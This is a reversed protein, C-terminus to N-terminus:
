EEDKNEKLKQKEKRRQKRDKLIEEYTTWGGDIKSYGLWVYDIDPYLYWFMKRKLKAVSDPCGKIDIVTEKGSKEVIYFDAKYEIPLVKKGNHKYAPQLIYSKQRECHVISGDHMKPVVVDRYYRMEVASDFVIGEYTRDQADKQVNYKTARKPQQESDTIKIAECNKRKNMNM